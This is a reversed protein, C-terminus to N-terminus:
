RNAPLRDRISSVFKDLTPWAPGGDWGHLQYAHLQRFRLPLQADDIRLPILVEREAGEYAEARVWDSQAASDSWILVVCRAQGLAQEIVEDYQSGPILSRDWWVVLDQQSLLDALTAACATDERAYSIFVDVPPRVVQSFAAFNLGDTTSTAQLGFSIGDTRLSFSWPMSFTLIFDVESQPYVSVHKPVVDTWDAPEGIVVLDYGEVLNSVNTVRGQVSTRTGPAAPIREPLTILASSGGGV